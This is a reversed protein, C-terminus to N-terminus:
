RGLRYKKKSGNATEWVSFPSWLHNCNKKVIKQLSDHFISNSLQGIGVKYFSWGNWLKKVIRQKEFTSDKIKTKAANKSMIIKKETTPPSCSGM